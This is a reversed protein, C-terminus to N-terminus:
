KNQQAMYREYKEAHMALIKEKVELLYKGKLPYWYLLLAGILLALGPILGVIARIGFLATAPQELFIQGNNQDRTVFHTIQLIFPMLAIAISEAPKTFLANAGYFAGERRVGTRVEDEDIVQGLLLYTLTQTGSLGLGALAISIPIFSVPLITLACLGLGSIVLYLQQAGVAGLKKVVLGTLPVGLALPIFLYAMLVVTDTQAVYDALYFMAGTSMSVMMTGMFNMAVFILFSKSTLTYKLSPWLKLPTDVASFEKREKIKYSALIILFACIFGVAVMSLQLSLLSTDMSGAKPRFFDPILFGFLTGVLGFLTSSINLQNRQIDSETIEPMLAGHVLGIITYCTDYLLMTVLMWVFQMFDSASPPAFWVLIFTLGLFPATFRMYPIRRGFRSRTHDTIHGFLPDNIANWIAYVLSAIGIWRASLGLYDQYFIPLLAAYIGSITSSGLSALGYFLKTSFTLKPSNHSALATM